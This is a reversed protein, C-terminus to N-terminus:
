CVEDKLTELKNILNNTLDIDVYLDKIKSDLEEPTMNSAMLLSYLNNKEEDIRNEDYILAEEIINCILNRQRDLYQCAEEEMYNAAKRISRKFKVKSVNIIEETAKQKIEALNSTEDYLEKRVAEMEEEAKSVKVAANGREVLQQIRYNINQEKRSIKENCEREIESRLLRVHNYETDDYYEEIREIRKKGILIQVIEGLFGKRDVEEVVERQAKYINGDKIDSLRSIKENKLRELDRKANELEETLIDQAVKDDKAKIWREKKIEYELKKKEINKDIEDLINFQVTPTELEYEKINLAMNIIESLRIRVDDLDEDVDVVEDIIDLMRNELATKTGSWTRDLNSYVSSSIDAFDMISLAFQSNIPELEAEINNIIVELKNNLQSKSTNIASKVSTKIHERKEKIEEEMEHIKVKKGRVRNDLEKKDTNFSNMEEKLEDRYLNVKSNVSTIPSTLRDKTNDDSTLYNVLAEKFMSFGSANLKFESLEGIGERQLKASLPYIEKHEDYVGYERLKEKLDEITGEVSGETNDAKDIKNLVLFVRDMRDKIYQLFKLEEAAGPKDYSFIFISADSKNVYNRAIETHVEYTSNFGPTDVIEVGNKLFESELYLIVEKINYEVDVRSNRASYDKIDDIEITETEGNSFIIQAKNRLGSKTPYKMRTITATSALEDEVLVEEGFGMLANLFTSKGNSFHGFVSITFTDNELNEVKSKIFDQIKKNNVQEEIEKLRNLVLYKKEEYLEFSM